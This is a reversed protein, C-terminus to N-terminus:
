MKVQFRNKRMTNVIHHNVDPHSIVYQALEDKDWFNNVSIDRSAKGGGGPSGFQGVIGGTAYSMRNMAHITEPGYYQVAQATVIGEGSAVMALQNDTSSPSGPVIGGQAFSLVAAFAAAAAIPAIIWGIYPIQAASAYVGAAATRADEFRTSKNVTQQLLAGVVAQLAVKILMDIIQEGAQVFAQAWNQTGTILGTLASSTADIGTNVIQGFVQSAKTGTLALTDTFKQLGITWQGGFSNQANLLRMKQTLTDLKSIAGDINALQKQEEANTVGQATGVAVVKARMDELKSKEQDITSQFSTGISLNLSQEKGLSVLGLQHDVNTKAVAADYEKQAATNEALIATLEKQNETDVSPGKAGGGGGGKTGGVLPSTGTGRNVLDLQQRRVEGEFDTQKQSVENVTDGGAQLGTPFQRSLDVGRAAFRRQDGESLPTVGPIGVIAERAAQGANNAFNQAANLATAVANGFAILSPIAGLAASAVSAIGSVIASVGSSISPDNLANALANLGQVLPEVIPKSAALALQEFAANVKQQARDITDSSSEHASAFEQVKASLEETTTGAERWAAAQEKTIGLNQALANTNSVTGNFISQLDTVMKGQTTHLASQQSVLSALVDSLGKISTNARAAAPFIADFDKSLESIPVQAAKASSVIQNVAEVGADKAAGGGFNKSDTTLVGQVGEKINQLTKTVEIGKTVIAALGAVFAVAAGVGTAILVTNLVGLQGATTIAGNGLTRIEGALAGAGPVGRILGSTMADLGRALSAVKITHEEAAVSAARQAATAPAFNAATVGIARGLGLQSEIARNSAANWQEGATAADRMRQSWQQSSSSSVNTADKLGKLDSQLQTVAERNTANVKLLIEVQSQSDPM